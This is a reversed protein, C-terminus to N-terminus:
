QDPAIHSDATKQKRGSKVRFRRDRALDVYAGATMAAFAVAGVPVSGLALAFIMLVIGLGMVTTGILMLQFATGRITATSLTRALQPDGITLDQRIEQLIRSEHESLEM